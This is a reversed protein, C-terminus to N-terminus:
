KKTVVVKQYVGGFYTTKHWNYLEPEAAFDKIDKEWMEFAFPELFTNVLRLIQRIPNFISPNHYDVFVAKANNRKVQDLMNAVIKSKIDSPVEHLLFFSGVVDYDRHYPIKADQQWMDVYDLHKLKKYAQALQVPAVDILDLHGKPSIKQALKIIMDGYVHAIQLMNSGAPVEALYSKILRHANGFLLTNVVLNRDLRAVNKPNLYSWTYVDKLYVPTDVPKTAETLVEFTEKLGENLDIKDERMPRTLEHHLNKLHEKVAPDAPVPTLDAMTFEKNFHERLQSPTMRSAPVELPEDGALSSTAASTPNLQTSAAAQTAEKRLETPSSLSCSKSENNSTLPKANQM